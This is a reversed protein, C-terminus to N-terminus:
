LPDKLGKRRRVRYKRPSTNGGPGRTKDKDLSKQKELLDKLSPAEPEKKEEDVVGYKEM